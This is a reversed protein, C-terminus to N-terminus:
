YVQPGSQPPREEFLYPCLLAYVFVPQLALVQSNKKINQYKTPKLLYVRFSTIIFAIIFLHLPFYYICNEM